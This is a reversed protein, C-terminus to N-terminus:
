KRVQFAGVPVGALGRATAQLLINQAVHGAEYHVYRIGRDRYKGTTREYIGTIIFVCPADIICNQGFAAASLKGRIDEKRIRTLSHDPPHYHFLGDKKAVYVELPYLAGASPATRKGNQPETIGQAAWLLQGIEALTLERDSFERVSRRQALATTLAMGGETQPAPLTVADLSFTMMALLISTIM